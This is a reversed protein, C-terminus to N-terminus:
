NVAKFIIIAFSITFVSVILSGINLPLANFIKPIFNLFEFVFEILIKLGILANLILDKITAIFKIFELVIM